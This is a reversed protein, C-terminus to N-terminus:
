FASAKGQSGLLRIKEIVKEKVRKEGHGLSRALNYEEPEKQLIELLGHTFAQRLETDINVKAIGLSVAKQIQDDPVGSGGHLVIPKNVLKQIEDLRKFALKPERKYLGHATGISVALYDVNTKQSFFLAEEATTILADQESVCIDDETGGIKGIEGEVGIKLAHAVDAVAKTIKVNEDIPLHSGDFMVSHFDSKVAEMVQSFQRSHDLHICVPATIGVMFCDVMKKMQILGLTNIVRQGIQLMIPAQEEEAASIIARITEANHASFAGIAYGSQWAHKVMINGSLYSM